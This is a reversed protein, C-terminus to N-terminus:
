CLPIAHLGREASEAGGATVTEYHFVIAVYVHAVMEHVGFVLQAIDGLLMQAIQLALGLEEAEAYLLAVAERRIATLAIEEKCATAFTGLVAKDGCASAFLPEVSQALSVFVEEFVGDGIHLLHALQEALAEFGLM